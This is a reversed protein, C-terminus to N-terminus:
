RQLIVWFHSTLNIDMVKQIYEHSGEFISVTTTIIGANNVLIDVPGLSEEILERLQEVEEINSADARFAKAEVKFNERLEEALKCAADCDIDVIAIKCKQKAFQLVLSKGIGNGGGTVLVVQGEINKKKAPVFCRSIKRFIEVIWFFHVKLVLAIIKGLVVFKTCISTREPADSKEYNSNEDVKDAM